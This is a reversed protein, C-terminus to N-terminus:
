SAEIETMAVSLQVELDRTNLRVLRPARGLTMFSIATFVIMLSATVPRSMSRVRFQRYASSVGAAHILRKSEFKLPPWPFLWSARAHPPGIRHLVPCGEAHSKM